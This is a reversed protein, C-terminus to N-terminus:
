AAAGDQLRTSCSGKDLPDAGTSISQTAYKSRSPKASDNLISFLLNL